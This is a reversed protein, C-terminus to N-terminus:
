KNACKYDADYGRERLLRADLDRFLKTIYKGDYSTDIVINIAPPINGIDAICIVEVDSLEKVKLIEWEMVAKDNTLLLHDGNDLEKWLKISSNRQIYTRIFDFLKLM